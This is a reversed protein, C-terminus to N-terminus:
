DLPTVALGQFLHDGLPKLMEPKITQKGVAFAVLSRAVELGIAMEESDRGSRRYYQTLVARWHIDLFVQLAKALGEQHILDILTHDIKRELRMKSADSAAKLM